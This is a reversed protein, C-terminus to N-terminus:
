KIQKKTPHALLYLSHVSVISNILYGSFLFLAYGTGLKTTFGNRVYAQVFFISLVLNIVWLYKKNNGIRISLLFLPLSATLGFFLIVLLGTKLNYMNQFLMSWSTTMILELANFRLWYSAFMIQKNLMYKPCALTQRGSKLVTLIISNM